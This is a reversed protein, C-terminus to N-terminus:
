SQGVMVNVFGGRKFQATYNIGANLRGGGEVRDWGAYKNVAFLNSTDFSFSQSDENPLRGISTENPRAIIQAIPEITQTGWSQVSIFPYRYEMGVTPMVRAVDTEGAKMFNSVGPDNVIEVNAFDVRASAFPTWVQGYPDVV